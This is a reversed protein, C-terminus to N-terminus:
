ALAGVFGLLTQLPAISATLFPVLSERLEGVDKKMAEEETCNFVISGLKILGGNSAIERMIHGMDIGISLANARQEQTVEKTGQAMQSQEKATVLQVGSPEEIERLKTVADIMEDLKFDVMLAYFRSAQDLTIEPQKVAEKTETAPSATEKSM